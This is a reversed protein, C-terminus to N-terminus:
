SCLKSLHIEKMDFYITNYGQNLANSLIMIEQDELFNNFLIILCKVTVRFNKICLSTNSKFIVFKLSEYMPWKIPTSMPLM